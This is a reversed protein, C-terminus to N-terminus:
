KFDKINPFHKRVQNMLEKYALFAGYQNWHSSDFAKYYVPREQKGDRLVGFATEFDFNGNNTLERDLVEIASEYNVKRLSNPMYEPYISYKYPWIMVSFEVGLKKLDKTIRSYNDGIWVLADKTPVNTNVYNPIDYDPLLYLWDDKGEIVNEWPFVHFLKYSVTDIALLALERGGVNDNIWNELDVRTGHSLM